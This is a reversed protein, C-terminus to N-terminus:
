AGDPPAEIHSAVPEAAAQMMIDFAEVEDPVPDLSRQTQSEVEITHGLPWVVTLHCAVCRPDDVM